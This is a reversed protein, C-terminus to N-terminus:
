EPDRPSPSTYLLCDRPLGIAQLYLTGPVVFSGTLGTFVGNIGGLLPGAWREARPDIVPRIGKLALTAYTILLLGLIGSLFAPNLISLGMGGVWVLLMAPLLFPCLRNLLRRGNGGVMAQWLNTVFSPLLLTAMATPLDFILTLLALSITPM